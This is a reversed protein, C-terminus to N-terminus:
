FRRLPNKVLGAIGQGLGQGFGRGPQYPAGMPASQMPQGQRMQELYQDVLADREPHFDQTVVGGGALTEARSRAEETVGGEPIGKGIGIGQGFGQGLPASPQPMPSRFPAPAQPRLQTLPGM